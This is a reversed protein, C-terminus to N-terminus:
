CLILSLTLWLKNQSFLLKDILRRGEGALHNGRDYKGVARLELREGSAAPERVVVMKGGGGRRADQHLYGRGEQTGRSLPSSSMNQAGETVAWIGDLPRRGKGNASTLAPLRRACTDGGHNCGCICSPGPDDSRREWGAANTGVAVCMLVM